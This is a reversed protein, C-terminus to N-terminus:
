KNKETFVIIKNMMDVAQAPWAGVATEASLMVYDTGDLIANAVDSVEARTPRSHETMSELMQTATIVFKGARNCKQIIRKQIMPVEYVPLSVGMDGRAIMIGDVVGLISDIHRVGERNEIKAIVRPQHRGKLLKRVALIDQATRVFSQALFDVQHKIAFDIAERDKYTVGKFDIRVDPMNIGKHEKVMGPVVVRAKIADPRCGEAVLAINGDDIYIHRGKKIRELPGRYDFPIINGEGAVDRTTLWIFAGKRLEIPKADKLRGVRIRYGELDGLIRIHRRYKRNLERVLKIRELHEAFSGHSFNLRVVDMGARIMKLLVGKKESAPGLTCIIKTKPM